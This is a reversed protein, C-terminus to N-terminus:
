IRWQLTHRNPFGGTELLLCSRCTWPDILYKFHFYGVEEAIQTYCFVHIRPIILDRFGPKVM